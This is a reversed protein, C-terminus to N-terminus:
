PQLNKIPKVARAEVLTQLHLDQENKTELLYFSNWIAIKTDKNIHMDYKRPCNCVLEDAISKGSVIDGKYNTYEEGKVRAKRIVNRKYTDENVVGRKRKTEPEDDASVSYM